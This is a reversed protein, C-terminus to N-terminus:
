AVGARVAGEETKWAGLLQRLAGALDHLSFPKQLVAM